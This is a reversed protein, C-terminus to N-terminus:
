HRSFYAVGSQDSIQYDYNLKFNAQKLRDFLEIKSGNPHYEMAISQIKELTENSSSHFVEHEGGEIDIKLLDVKDVAISKLFDELTMSQVELGTTKQNKDLLGRSQSPGESLDMNRLGSKASLAVSNLVVKKELHNLAINKALLSYTEPFPEIAYIKKTNKQASYISFVGINAGADIVIRAEQPVKYEERFFIVWTTVLDHFTNLTIKQNKYTKFIFPYKLSKIGLYAMTLERWQSSLKMCRRIEFLRGM